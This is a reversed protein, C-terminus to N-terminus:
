HDRETQRRRAVGLHSVRRKTPLTLHTYAVPAAAAKNLARTESDLVAPPRGVSPPANTAIVTSVWQTPNLVRGLLSSFVSGGEAGASYVMIGLVVFVIGLLAKFGRSHFVDRLVDGGDALRRPHRM